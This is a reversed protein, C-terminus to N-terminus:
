SERALEIVPELHSREIFFPKTRLEELRRIVEHIIKTPDRTVAIEGLFDFADKSFQYGASMAMELAKQLRIKDLDKPQKSPDTAL